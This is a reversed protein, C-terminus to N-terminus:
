IKVPAQAAPAGGAPPWSTGKKVQVHFHTGTAKPNTYAIRQLEPGLLTKPRVEFLVTFEAAPLLLQLRRYIRLIAADPLGKVSIDYAEGAAHRGGDDRSASTIELPADCDLEAVQSLARLLRFGGPAITAFRVGDRARLYSM